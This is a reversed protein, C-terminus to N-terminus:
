LFNVDDETAEMAQKKSPTRIERLREKEKRVLALGRCDIQMEDFGDLDVKYLLTHYFEHVICGTIKGESPVKNPKPMRFRSLTLSTKEKEIFNANVIKVRDGIKFPFFIQPTDGSLLELKARFEKEYGPCAPDVPFAKLIKASFNDNIIAIDQRGVQNKRHYGLQEPRYGSHYLHWSGVASYNARQSYPFFALMAEEGHLIPVCVSLFRSEPQPIKGEELREMEKGM